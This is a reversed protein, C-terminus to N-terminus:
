ATAPLAEGPWGWGWAVRAGRDAALRAGEALMATKGIAAEGALLVVRGTGAIADDIARSLGAVVDDRGLPGTTRAAAM